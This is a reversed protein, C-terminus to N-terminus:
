QKKKKGITYGGLGAILTLASMFLAGNIGNILALATLTGIAVIALATIYYQM